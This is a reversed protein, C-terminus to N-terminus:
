RRGHKTIRKSKRNTAGVIQHRERADMASASGSLRRSRRGDFPLVGERGPSSPPVDATDVKAAFEAIVSPHIGLAGALRLMTSRNVRRAHGAEIRTVTWRAVGALQALQRYSLGHFERWERLTRM